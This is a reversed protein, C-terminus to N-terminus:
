RYRADKCNSTELFVSPAPERGWIARGARRPTMLFSRNREEFYRSIAEKADGVSTYDSNHIIARSMGSFVSEIVNLFQAGAPLPVILIEPADGGSGPGNLEEIRDHLGKSRHWPAADWSLYIRRFGKYRDRIMEILKITEGTNKRESYFHTMQNKSLELAATVILSGKSKQWQPVVRVHNPGCLSRGGRMKVAFPGFEDISFFAEDPALHSLTSRIIELKDRYNPDTSTLTVRAQKWRYGAAKIVAAINRQSSTKGLTRLVNGLDSLKWSTRNFGHDSPPTHLVAFVADHLEEGPQLYRRPIRGPRCSRDTLGAVGEARFRTLWKRVTAETVRFEHAVTRPKQGTDAVRSVILARCHPCTRANRHLKM